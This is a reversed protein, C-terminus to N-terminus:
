RSSAGQNAVARRPPIGPLGTGDRGFILLSVGLRAAVWAVGLAVLLVTVAVLITTFHFVLTSGSHEVMSWLHLLLPHVLYIQMSQMGLLLAGRALWGNSTAVWRSFGLLCFMIGTTYIWCAIQYHFTDVPRELVRIVVQPLYAAWNYTRVPDELERTIAQPVYTAWGVLAMPIALYRLRLWTESWRELNLGVWVGVIVPLVHWLLLTSPYRSHIWQQHVWYGGLQLGAAVVLLPGIGVKIRQLVGMLFPFVLYLQLAIVLFYLHYYAKGWLLWVRWRGPDLLVDPADQATLVRFVAYILSWLLYPVLTQQARRTYFDRWTRRKSIMTRTLLAGMIFLFAPVAFHLTRNFVLYGFHSLSAPDTKRTAFASVHHLLM